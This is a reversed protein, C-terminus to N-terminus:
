LKTREAMVAVGVDHPHHLAVAAEEPLPDRRHALELQDAGVLLLQRQDRELQGLLAVVVLEVDGPLKGRLAAPHHGAYVSGGFASCTFIMRASTFSVSLWASAAM